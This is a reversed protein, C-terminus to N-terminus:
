EKTGVLFIAQWPQYHSSFTENILVQDARKVTRSFSVDAGPAKWDIQKIEGKPLTLDDQRLDDPPPTTNKVLPQSIEVVRGDSTGYLDFTLTAAQSNFFSQILLHYGTNNIFKLDWVPDYVSADLGVPSSQEYYGVRYSHAHRETIPLGANLIARFLTTSVQCVGGGDGLITRGDKIIYAEKYGTFKSVDGLAKNFSFEENPAVLVGDLRSAALQINHRRNQISGRFQSSGQGVLEKLGLNNVKETTVKPEVVRIPLEFILSAPLTGGPLSPLHSRVMKKTREVDLAQGNSSPRFTSVRGNSFRFLAEQPPINIKEAVKGLLASVKAENYSYALPLHYGTRLSCFKLYLDSLLNGSRGYSYAQTSITKADYGWNIEQASLTAVIEKSTFTFDFSIRSNKQAFFKEVEQPTKGGFDEGAIKLGPYVRGNYNKEWLFYTTTVLFFLTLCGLAFFLLFKQWSRLKMWLNFQQM